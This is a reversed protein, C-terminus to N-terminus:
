HDSTVKLNEWKTITLCKEVQDWKNGNGKHVKALFLLQYYVPVSCFNQQKIVQLSTDRTSLLEIM